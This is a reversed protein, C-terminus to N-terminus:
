LQWQESMSSYIHHFNIPLHTYLNCLRDKGGGSDQYWERYHVIIRWLQMWYHIWVAWPKSQNFGAEARCFLRPMPLYIKNAICPQASNLLLQHGNCVVVINELPSDNGARKSRSSRQEQCRLVNNPFCLYPLLVDHPSPARCVRQFCSELPYPTCEPLTKFNHCYLLEIFMM